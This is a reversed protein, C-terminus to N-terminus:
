SWNRISMNLYVDYTTMDNNLPGLPDIYAAKTWTDPLIHIDIDYMEWLHGGNSSMDQVFAAVESQGVVALWGVPPNPPSEAIMPDLLVVKEQPTLDKQDAEERIRQLGVQELRAFIDSQFTGVFELGPRFPIPPSDKSFL